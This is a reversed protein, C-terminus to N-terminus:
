ISNYPTEFGSNEGRQRLDRENPFFHSLERTIRIEM